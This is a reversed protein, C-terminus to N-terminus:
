EETSQQMLFFSILFFFITSFSVLLSTNIFFLKSIFLQLFTTVGVTKITAWILSRYAARKTKFLFFNIISPLGIEFFSLVVIVIFMTQQFFPLFSKAKDIPTFPHTFSLAENMDSPAPLLTINYIPSQSHYGNNKIMNWNAETHINSLLLNAASDEVINISFFLCPLLVWGLMAFLILYLIITGFNRRLAQKSFHQLELAITKKLEEHKKRRNYLVISWYTSYFVLALCIICYLFCTIIENPDMKEVDIALLYIIVLVIYILFFTIWRSQM